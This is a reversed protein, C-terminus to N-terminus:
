SLDKYKHRFRSIGVLTRLTCTVYMKTVLVLAYALETAQTFNSLLFLVRQNSATGAVEDANLKSILNIRLLVNLSNASKLKSSHQQFKTHLYTCYVKRERLVINSVEINKKPAIWIFGMRILKIFFLNKIETEHTSIKIRNGSYM